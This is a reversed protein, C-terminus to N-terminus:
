QHGNETEGTDQLLAALAQELAPLTPADKFDAMRHYIEAAAAHFGDPLGAARFTAAIEDMEGAFRWAKATARTVRQLAEQAFGSEDRSWQQELAQRVDLAESAALVACLLATTGKSYAAYCMKLASARGISDGIVSTELPGAAFWDAVSQAEPGALYLWTANPKWAPGGIIAGDVFKAGHPVMTEGIRTVRQSSIANMDVYLGTFGQSLVQQAVTEAADPPCVSFIGSCVECLNALSHADILGLRTAREATQPSRGESVWYVTHGSNQASAAISMGMEGPHLIGLNQQM